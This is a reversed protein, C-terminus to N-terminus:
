PVFSRNKKPYVKLEVVMNEISCIDSSSVKALVYLTFNSNLTTLVHISSPIEVLTFANKNDGHIIIFKLQKEGLDCLLQCFWIIEKAVLTYAM